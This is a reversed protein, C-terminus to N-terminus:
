RVNKRVSVCHSTPKLEGRHRAWATYATILSLALGAVRGAAPLLRPVQASAVTAISAAVGIGVGWLLTNMEVRYGIRRLRNSPQHDLRCRRGAIRRFAAAHRWGLGCVGRVTHRVCIRPEGARVGFLCFLPAVRADVPALLRTSVTPHHSSDPLV